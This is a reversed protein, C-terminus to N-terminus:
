PAESKNRADRSEGKVPKRETLISEYDDKEVPRARKRTATDFLNPVDGMQSKAKAIEEQTRLYDPDKHGSKALEVVDIAQPLADVAVQGTVGRLKGCKQMFELADTYNGGLDALTRLTDELKPTCQRRCMGKTPSMRAVQCQNSAEDMTVTFEGVRCSLPAVLELDEGFLVIEARRSTSLHALPASKTPVRHLWFSRNLLEGEVMPDHENKARLARFAGYRVEPSTSGLLEKLKVDAIAEDLSALATLAFARLSPQEEVIRALEAGATPSGLYALAEACALRIVAHDHDLGRKLIPMSKPGMAELRLAASIAQAPDLLRDELSRVYSGQEPQADIPVMRVVRLFRPINHKYQPPVILNVIQNNKAVALDTNPSRNCGHFTENIREALKMAIQARQQDRNLVLFFPRDIKNKGGAWIKGQRLRAGEDGDGLGVLVAGSATALAHGALLRDGGASGPELTKTSSYDKLPCDLLVGGRLSTTKSNPPLAVDLDIPDGKRAGAPILGSVLVMSTNPNALAEKPNEVGDKRLQEELMTRFGGPPASGGTGELHIVLGVGSVAVPDANSVTTWDGVTRVEPEKDDPKESKLLSQKQHVCGVVAGLGLAWLAAWRTLRAKRVM